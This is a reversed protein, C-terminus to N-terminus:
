ITVGLLDIRPSKALMMMAVGDDFLDVMDADLVVPMAEDGRQFVGGQVPSPPLTSYPSSVPAAAALSTFALLAVMCITQVLRRVANRM